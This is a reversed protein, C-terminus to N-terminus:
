TGGQIRLGMRRDVVLALIGSAVFADVLCASM